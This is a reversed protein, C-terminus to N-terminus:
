QYSPDKRQNYTKYKVSYVDVLTFAGVNKIYLSSGTMSAASLADAVAEVFSDLNIDNTSVDALMTQLEEQTVHEMSNPVKGFKLKYGDITCKYTMRNYNAECDTLSPNLYFGVVVNVPSSVPLETPIAAKDELSVTEIVEMLTAIFIEHAETNGFYDDLFDQSGIDDATAYATM